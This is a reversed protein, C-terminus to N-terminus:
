ATTGTTFIGALSWGAALGTRALGQVQVAPLEELVRAPFEQYMEEAMAHSAKMLTDISAKIQEINDGKSKEKIM